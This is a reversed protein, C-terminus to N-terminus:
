QRFSVFKQIKGFKGANEWFKDIKWVSKGKEGVLAGRSFSEPVWAFLTDLL